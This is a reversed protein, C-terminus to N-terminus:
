ALNIQNGAIAGACDDKDLHSRSGIFAKSLHLVCDCRFFLSLEGSSRLIKEFSVPDLISRKTEVNNGDHKALFAAWLDPM